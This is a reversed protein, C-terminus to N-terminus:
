GTILFTYTSTYFLCLEYRFSAVHLVGSARALSCARVNLVGGRETAVCLRGTFDFSWGGSTRV